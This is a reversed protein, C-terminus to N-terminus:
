QTIEQSREGKLLVLINKGVANLVSLQVPSRYPLRFHIKTNYALPNAGQVRMTLETGHLGQYDHVSTVDLEDAGIEPRLIDRLEGDIDDFALDSFPFGAQIAPSTVSIHLDDESLFQPEAVVSNMESGLVSQISALDTRGTDNWVAITDGTSYILNHDIDFTKNFREIFKIRYAPNDNFSAIINNYATISDSGFPIELGISQSASDRVAISNFLVRMNKSQGINVGTLTSTRDPIYIPDHVHVMNNAILGFPETTSTFGFSIGTASSSGFNSGRVDIRNKTIRLPGSCQNLSIGTGISEIDNRHIEPAHHFQLSIPFQLDRSTDARRFANEIIKTGHIRDEELCDFGFCRNLRIGGTGGIFENREIRIGDPSGDEDAFIHTTNDARSGDFINDTIHLDNVKGIIWLATGFYISDDARITVDRLRFHDIGRLRLLHREGLIFSFLHHLVVNDPNGSESRLTITNESSTGPIENITEYVNHEGDLMAFEVPGEVCRTHLDELARNLTEYDGDPGVTYVGSLGKPVFDYEFAGIDPTNPNRSNGEIDKTVELLPIGVNDLVESNTQLDTRLSYCPSTSHSNLEKELGRQLSDLTPVNGAPIRGLIDGTTYINNFDSEYTVNGVPYSIAERGRMNTFINNFIRLSDNNFSSFSAAINSTVQFRDTNDGSVHITNHFFDARKTESVSLGILGSATDSDIILVVNNAVLNRQESGDCNRLIIGTGFREPRLTIRNAEVLLRSSCNEVSIGTGDTQTVTNQKITVERYNKLIIGAGGLGIIGHSMSTEQITIGETPITDSLGFGNIGAFGGSLTCQELVLNPTNFLYICSNLPQVFRPKQTVNIIAKSIRLNASGTARIGTGYIEGPNEITLNRITVFDTTDVRIVDENNNASAGLHQYFITVDRPNGSESEFIIPNSAGAGPVNSIYVQEEYRGKLLKFTTPGDVGKENLAEVATSFTEFDGGSGVTFTGSLQAFGTPSFFLTFLCFLSVVHLYITKM